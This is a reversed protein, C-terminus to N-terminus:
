APDTSFTATTWRSADVATRAPSFAPLVSRWALTTRANTEAGSDEVAPEILACSGAPHGRLPASTTANTCRDEASLPPIGTRPAAREDSGKAGAEADLAVVSSRTLWM